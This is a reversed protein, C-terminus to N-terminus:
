KKGIVLQYKGTDGKVYAESFGANLLFEIEHEVTVPTDMHRMLNPTEIFEKLRKEEEEDNSAHCDCNLFLGDKKLSDYVKKYLNLKDIGVFHHLAASSIVADYDKGFDVKFFDGCIIDVKSGFDREKLRKLMNETIDIATVHVNPYKEFIPVLELGTGAGLDLIREVSSNLSDCIMKKSDMYPLHVEDYGDAKENFFEEMELSRKELNM